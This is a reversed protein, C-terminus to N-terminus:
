QSFVNHKEKFSTWQHDMEHAKNRLKAVRFSDRKQAEVRDEVPHSEIYKMNLCIRGSHECCRLYFLFWIWDKTLLIYKM